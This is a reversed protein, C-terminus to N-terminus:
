IEMIPAQEAHVPGHELYPGAFDEFHRLDGSEFYRATGGSERGNTLGAGALHDRLARAGCESASLLKVDRGLYDRIADAIIGYHTCGLLLADFRRGQLPALTDEVAELLLPDDPDIHGQEILPAFAPCPLGVIERGPCRARLPETFLGSAISAPTALIGLAGDGEVAAMAEVAPHLVGFAPIPYAAIEAHAASSITGCAALIAKVGHSALFDMDQVAIRRLEALSRAGYPMRGTDGFFVFSEEPLLQRLARLGTLGGVGSDYIGIPRNDM